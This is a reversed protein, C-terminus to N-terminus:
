KRHGQMPLRVLAVIALIKLLCPLLAYGASLATLGKQANTLGPQYGFWELLPLVLVAAFALTMKSVFNWLGFGIEAGDSRKALHSAFLAPLLTMDAGLAAGSVLSILAFALIQGEQLFHNQFLFVIQTELRYLLEM